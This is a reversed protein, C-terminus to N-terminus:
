ISTKFPHRGVVALHTWQTSRVRTPWFLLVAQKCSSSPYIAQNTMTKSVYRIRLLVFESLWREAEVRRSGQLVRPCILCQLMKRNYGRIVILRNSVGWGVLTRMRGAHGCDFVMYLTSTRDLTCLIFKREVPHKISQQFWNFITKNTWSNQLLLWIKGSGADRQAGILVLAHKCFM